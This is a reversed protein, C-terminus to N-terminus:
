NCVFFAADGSAAKKTENPSIAGASRGVAAKLVARGAVVGVTGKLICATTAWAFDWLWVMAFLFGM